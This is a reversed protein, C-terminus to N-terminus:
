RCLSIREVLHGSREVLVALVDFVKPTLQIPVGDRWLQREAVELRFGSFEFTGKNIEQVM